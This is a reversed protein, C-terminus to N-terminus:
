WHSQAPLCRMSTKYSRPSEPSRLASTSDSEPSATIRRSSGFGLSLSFTQGPKQITPRELDWRMHSASPPEGHVSHGCHFLPRRERAREESWAPGALPPSPSSWPPEHDCHLYRSRQFK